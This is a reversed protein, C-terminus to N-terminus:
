AVAKLNATSVPEFLWVRGLGDKEYRNCSRVVNTKNQNKLWNNLAHSIKAAEGPQCVICQGAKLKSFIQEYKPAATLKRGTMPDNAIKLADVDVPKSQRKPTPGFPSHANAFTTKM